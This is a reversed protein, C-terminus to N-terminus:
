SPASEIKEAISRVEDSSFHINVKGTKTQRTGFFKVCNFCVGAAADAVDKQGYRPHDIKDTTAVRELQRLETELPEYKPLYVRKEYVAAKLTEHAETTKDMSLIDCVVGKKRLTQISDLSQWSDYTVKYIKWGKKLMTLIFERVDSFEIERKNGASVRAVMDYIIVPRGGHDQDYGGFHCICLGAFDGRSGDARVRNLGLDVHVFVKEAPPADLNCDDFSTKWRNKIQPYMVNLIMDPKRYFREITSTPIAGYDRASLEPSRRFDDEFDTPIIWLRADLTPIGFKLMERQAETPTINVLDRGIQYSKLQEKELVTFLERDFVFVEESMKDRDKARWTPNNLVYTNEINLVKQEKIKENM